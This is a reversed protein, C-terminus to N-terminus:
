ATNDVEATLNFTGSAKLNGAAAADWIEITGSANKARVLVTGTTTATWTQGSTLALRSGTTGTTVSGSSIDVKVWYSGGYSGGVPTIWAGPDFTDAGGVSGDANISLSATAQTLGVGVLLTSASANLTAPIAPAAAATSKPLQLAQYPRM